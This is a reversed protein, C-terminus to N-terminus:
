RSAKTLVQRYRVVAILYRVLPEITRVRDDQVASIQSLRLSVSTYVFGASVWQFARLLISSVELWDRPREVPKESSSLM